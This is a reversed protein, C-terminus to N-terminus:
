RGLALLVSYLESTIQQLKESEINLNNYKIWLVTVAHAPARGSICLSILTFRSVPSFSKPCLALCPFMCSSISLLLLKISYIVLTVDNEDGSNLEEM